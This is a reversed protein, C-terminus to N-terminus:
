PLDFSAENVEDALAQSQELDFVRQEPGYLEAGVDPYNALNFCLKPCAADTQEALWAQAIALLRLITKNNRVEGSGTRFAAVTSDVLQIAEDLSPCPLREYNV